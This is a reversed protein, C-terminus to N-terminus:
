FANLTLSNVSLPDLSPKPLNLNRLYSKGQESIGGSYIKDGNTLTSSSEGVNWKVFFDTLDFGSVYSSCVMLLDPNALQTQSANCHNVGLDGQTDGRAKRHMLKFMNWGQDQNYISPKEKDIYWKDINFQQKAWIKLQGFMVLRMGADGHSWAHGVNDRLWLPAKQISTSIRSMHPNDVRGDDLEQMYLALLNNTVETSGAVNFPASALNHGVEHWLLWSTLADTKIVKSQTDFGVSMVPYGSHAAGISIQVDENFRHKFAPWNASTFRRHAGQTTIEDRGYFDSAAEAFRNMDASFSGFSTQLLNNAPATYIFSGTDVEGIPASTQEFPHRWEGEKWWPAIEVGSFLFTALSTEGSLMERPEISILGGYPVKIDTSKGDHVFSMQMRPPRRLAKEHNERGTLDDAMMVTILARVGGTVTVVSLQPAWLGTSQNNGASYHVGVGATEILAQANTPEVFLSRGPFRSTDVIIDHDWFSRGLMIRTLPKEMYNLPYSPNLQYPTLQKEDHIMKNDMLTKKLSSPCPNDQQHRDQTYCNLFHVLTKFGLEDQVDSEFRYDNDNWLWVSLNDYTQNLEVASLRKGQNGQTRYYIEHEFLAQVNDGLNAARIMSEVVKPTIQYRDFDKRQYNGRTVIGNGQRTEICDIEYQYEHTCEQLGPFAAKLEAILAEKPADERVFLRAHKNILVPEGKDNLVINGDKDKKEIQYVPIELEPMDDPPLWTVTGDQNVQYPREGNKDPFREYVVMEFQGQVHLNPSPAECYYYSGCFLQNTPTVNPGGVAMGAADVLRGIPEPNIVGDIADMLLIHGGDNVYQVLATIDEQTFNPQELNAIYRVTQGDELLRTQYAQLILIPTQQASLSSFHGKEIEVVREFGYSPHIFFSYPIGNSHGYRAISARKINTAVEIQNLPLTPSFWNFLNSFFRQMSGKDNRADSLLSEHVTCTKEKDNIRVDGSAWFADPCSLISPYLSNGMYVIRGKGIEGAVVFPFGFTATDESVLPVSPMVVDPWAAIYPKGERTWAQPKGFEIAHNKDSRPMMVPFARNSLNLTRMGRTYGSAGYFSSNDNFVHFSDVGAFLTNLSESVFGSRSFSYVINSADSYFSSPKLINDIVQTLGQTFQKEFENPLLFETGELKGGNPLSLNILENIVNPYSQFTEKVLESIELQQDKVQGYRELLSQINAKEIENNTVDTLQYSIQNGKLSGFEFTDIGFSIKDGWLYEFQGNADTVGVANNSFYQIGSLVRGQFDTLTGVTLVKADASPKYSLSSEAEPSVFKDGLHNSSGPTIVAVISNDVHSSPAKDIVDTAQEDKITLFDDVAKNDDLQNYIQAIDFSNIEKLCIDDSAECTNISQLVRSANEGKVDAIDFFLTTIEDQNILYSTKESEQAIFEALSVDGLQCSFPTSLAVEFQGENLRIGNCDVEGLIAKGSSLLRGKILSQPPEPIDPDPPTIPPEPTEPEPSTVPPPTVQDVCEPTICGTNSQPVSPTEDLCGVLGMIVLPPLLRKM